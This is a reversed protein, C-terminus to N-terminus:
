PLLAILAHDATHFIWAFLPEQIESEKKEGELKTRFVNM